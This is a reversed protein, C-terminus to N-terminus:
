RTLLKDKGLTNTTESFTMVQGGSHKDHVTLMVSTKENPGLGSWFIYVPTSRGYM